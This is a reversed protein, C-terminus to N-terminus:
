RRSSSPTCASTTGKLGVFFAGACPLHHYFFNPMCRWRRSMPGCALLIHYQILKSARLQSGRWRRHLRDDRRVCFWIGAVADDNGFITLFCWIGLVAAYVMAGIAYRPEWHKAQQFTLVQTRREYKRM